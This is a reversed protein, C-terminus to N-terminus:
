YKPKWIIIRENLLVNSLYKKNFIELDIKNKKSLKQLYVLFTKNYDCNNFYKKSLKELMNQPKDIYTAEFHIVAKPKKKILEKFFNIKLNPICMLTNFTFITSNPKLNKFNKTKLLNLKLTKIRYNNKKSIKNIIKLGIPNLDCAYIIKFLKFKFFILSFIIRGFGSGLEVLNTQKSCYKSLIEKIEEINKKFYDKNNLKFFNNKKVSYGNKNYNKFYRLIQKNSFDKGLFLKKTELFKKEYEIKNKNSDRKLIKKRGLIYKKKIVQLDLNKM